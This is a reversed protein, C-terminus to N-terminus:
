TLDILAHWPQGALEELRQQLRVVSPVKLFAALYADLDVPYGLNNGLILCCGSDIKLEGSNFDYHKWPGNYLSGEIPTWGESLAEPLTAAIEAALSDIIPTSGFDM